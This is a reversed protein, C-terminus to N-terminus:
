KKKSFYSKTLSYLLIGGIAIATGAVSQATVPNRFVFVSAIIIVVRKLTNLVSHTIPQVLSLVWFSSLQYMFFYVGSAGIMYALKGAPVGSAIAGNWASPISRLGGPLALAIPFLVATAVITLVALQNTKRETKDEGMDGVGGLKTALVNRAVFAFNSAMATAFGFPTFSLEAASALAVGFFVPALSAYVLPHFVQGLILASGIANVAPELAKVVHTFSVAVAGLSAVTMVQGLAFFFGVPALKGVDSTTVKPPKVIGTAWMLMAIPIGAALQMFSVAWTATFVKLLMKNQINYQINFFYWLCAFLPLKLKAIVGSGSEETAETSKDEEADKSEISGAAAALATAAILFPLSAELSSEDHSTSALPKPTLGAFVHQPALQEKSSYLQRKQAHLAPSPVLFAGIFNVMLL